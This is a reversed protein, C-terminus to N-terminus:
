NATYDVGSVLIFLAKLSGSIYSLGSIKNANEDMWSALFIIAISDNPNKSLIFTQKCNLIFVDNQILFCGLYLYLNICKM